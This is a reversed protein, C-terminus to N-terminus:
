SFGPDNVYSLKTSLSSRGYVIGDTPVTGVATAAASFASSRLMISSAGKVVNTVYIVFGLVWM